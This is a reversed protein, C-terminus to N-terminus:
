LPCRKGATLPTASLAVCPVNFSPIGQNLHTLNRLILLNCLFSYLLCGAQLAVWGATAVRWRQPRTRLMAPLLESCISM